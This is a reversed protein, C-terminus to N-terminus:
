QALALVGDLTLSNPLVFTNTGHGSAGAYAGSGTSVEWVGTLGSTMFSNEVRLVLTGRTSILTLQAQFASVAPSNADSGTVHVNTRVFTGSDSIAGSASWVGAFVPDRTTTTGHILVPAPAAAGAPAASIGGLLLIAGLLAAILGGKRSQTCAEALVHNTDGPRATQEAPNVSPTKSM